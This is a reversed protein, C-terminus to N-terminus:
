ATALKDRLYFDQDRRSRSSGEHPRDSSFMLTYFVLFRTVSRICSANVIGDYADHIPPNSRLDQHITSRGCAYFTFPTANAATYGGRKAFPFDGHFPNPRSELGTMLFVM